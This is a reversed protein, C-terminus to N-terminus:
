DDSFTGKDFIKMEDQFSQAKGIIKPRTMPNEKSHMAAFWKYFV